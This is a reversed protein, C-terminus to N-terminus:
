LLGKFFEAGEINKKESKDSVKSSRTNDVVFDISVKEWKEEPLKEVKEKDSEHVKSFDIACFKEWEPIGKNQKYKCHDHQAIKAYELTGVVNIADKERIIMPFRVSIIDSGLLVIFTSFLVVLLFLM